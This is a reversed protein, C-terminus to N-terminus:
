EKGKTLYKSKLQQLLEKNCEGECGTNCTDDPIDNILEEMEKKHKQEQSSLLAEIYSVLAEGDYDTSLGVDIVKGIENKWDM